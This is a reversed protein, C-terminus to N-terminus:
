VHSKKTCKQCVVQVWKTLFADKVGSHFHSAETHRIAEHFYVPSSSSFDFRSGLSLGVNFRTLPNRKIRFFVFVFSNYLITNLSPICWLARKWASFPLICFILVTFKTNRSQFAFEYFFFFFLCCLLFSQKLVLGTSCGCFHSYSYYYHDNISLSKLEIHDGGYGSSM